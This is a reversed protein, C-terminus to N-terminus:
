SLHKESEECSKWQWQMALNTGVNTPQGQRQLKSAPSDPDLIICSMAIRGAQTCPYWRCDVHMASGRGALSIASRSSSSRSVGPQEFGCGKQRVMGIM